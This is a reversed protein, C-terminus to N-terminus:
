LLSRCLFERFIKTKRCPLLLVELGKPFYSCRWIESDHSGLAYKHLTFFPSSDLNIQMIKQYSPFYDVLPEFLHYEANPVVAQILRSWYGNSAGVDFIVKPHYDLNKLTKFIDQDLEAFQYTTRTMKNVM